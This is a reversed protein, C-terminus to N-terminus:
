FSPPGGGGPGGDPPPGGMGGDPPPGDPMGDEDGHRQRQKLLAAFKAAQEATLLGSIKSNADDRIAKMQSRIQEFQEQSPPAAQAEGSGEQQAPHLSKMLERSKQSREELIAKVKTQQESSLSLQKTL